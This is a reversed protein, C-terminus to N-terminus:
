QIRNCKWIVAGSAVLYVGLGAVNLLALVFTESNPDAALLTLFMLGFFLLAIVFVFQIQSRFGCLAELFSGTSRSM